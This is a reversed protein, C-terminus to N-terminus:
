ELIIKKTEQLGLFVNENRLTKGNSVVTIQHKGPSIVVPHAKRESKLQYVKDIQFPKGDVIVSVNEYPANSLVLIFSANEKGASLTNYMHPGCASLGVVALTWILLKNM